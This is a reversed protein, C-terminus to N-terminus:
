ESLREKKEFALVWVWPNADWGCGSKKANFRDWVDRFMARDDCGELLLDDDSIAQVRELRVDTLQLTIRSVWFPMFIGPRWRCGPWALSWGSRYVAAEDPDDPNITQQVDSCRYATAPVLAFSERVWLGGGIKGYPCTIIGFRAVRRTQTKRGSLIADVMPTSFIIPKM